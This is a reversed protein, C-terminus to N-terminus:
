FGPLNEGALLHLHLHNVVQGGGPGNNIIVRYGNSLNLKTSIEKAFLLIGSAIKEDILEDINAIHEKPVILLHIEAKPERDFFAVFQNNEFEIKATKGAVIQCFICNDSQNM